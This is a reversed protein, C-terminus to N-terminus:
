AVAKELFAGDLTSSSFNSERMDAATFNARRIDASGFQAALGIVFEGIEAEYKNLDAVAPLSSCFTVVTAVLATSVLTRCRKSKSSDVKYRTTFCDEEPQKFYNGKNILEWSHWTDDDVNLILKILNQRVGGCYRLSFLNIMGADISAHM